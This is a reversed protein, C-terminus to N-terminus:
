VVIQHAHRHMRNLLLAGVSANEVREDQYKLATLASHHTSAVTLGAGGPGGRVLGRLLAIGLASGETPDTGAATCLPFSLLCSRLSAAPRSSNLSGGCACGGM